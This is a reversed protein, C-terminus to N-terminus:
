RTFGILRSVRRCVTRCAKAADRSASRGARIASHCLNASNSGVNLAQGDPHSRGRPLAADQAEIKVQGEVVRVRFKM